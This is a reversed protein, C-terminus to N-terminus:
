ISFISKCKTKVTRKYLGRGLGLYSSEARGRSGAPPEAELGGTYISAMIGWESILESVLAESM